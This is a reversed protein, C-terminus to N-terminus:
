KTEIRLGDSVTIPLLKYKRAEDVSLRDGRRIVKINVGDVTDYVDRPAIVHTMFEYYNM